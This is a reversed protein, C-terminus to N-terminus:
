WMGGNEDFEYENCKLSEAVNEDSTLWEYEKELSKYIERMEGRASELMNDTIDDLMNLLKEYVRKSFPFLSADWERYLDYAYFNWEIDITNEHVYNGSYNARHINVIFEIEDWWKKLLVYDENDSNQEIWKEIDITCTFSAGDGQSCFGSFSIDPNEYGMNELKENWYEYEYDWWDRDEVSYHRHTDLAEKKIGEPLEEFKYINHTITEQRM